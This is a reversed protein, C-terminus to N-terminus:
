NALSRPPWLVAVVRGRVEDIALTGGRSALVVRSDRATSRDDALVFVEGQPVVVDFDIQDTRGQLYREELSTGDLTIRGDADCCSVRQGGIAIVRVLADRDGSGWEAPAAVLVVDGPAPAGWPSVLVRDGPALTPGMADDAVYSIQGVILRVGILLVAVVAAVIGAERAAILAWRGISRKPKPAAHRGRVVPIPQTDDHPRTVSM